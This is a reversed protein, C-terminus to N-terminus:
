NSYILHVVMMSDVAASLNREQLPQTVFEALVRTWVRMRAAPGIKTKFVSIASSDGVLSPCLTSLFEFGEEATLLNFETALYIPPPHSGEGKGKLILSQVLTTAEILNLSTGGVVLETKSSIWLQQLFPTLFPQKYPSSHNAPEFQRV